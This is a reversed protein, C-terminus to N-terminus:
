HAAMFAAMGERVEPAAKAIAARAADDDLAVSRAELLEAAHSSVVADYGALAALLDPLARYRDVLREAYARASTFSGDGDADVFIPATLGFVVPQWATTTPQYPRPIAWSPDTVGPGSAIVVVFYDHARRPLPWTVMAKEIRTAAARPVTAHAHERGNVFLAVRDASVWSPGSVSAEITKADRGSVLDGPGAKSIRAQPFLGLSVVVRGAGISTIAEDVGIRGPTADAARVYTRGQGVIFRSVDHSDSAGIPTIHLGRNILAFWSRIPEMWDSRMAGSNVVEMATFAHALGRTAGTAANFNARAFPTFDSHTDHPHNLVTVTGDPRARGGERQASRRGLLAPGAESAPFVNFHGRATTVENGAITTVENAVGTASLAPSYDAVRNHETAIALEIGEGALTLAREAVSADGHGSLELTHIHTDMAVWGPTAVERVLTLPLEQRQGARVTITTEHMGYEPGRTARVRYTGPLLKVDMPGAAAYVVGPRVAMHGEGPVAQLPTLAGNADVITVRAPLPQADGGTVRVGLSSTLLRAVPVPELRVDHIVVDDSPTTSSVRLTNPGTRLTGAPVPLVQVLDAEMRVLLGIRTGNIEVRWDQKVDAQRILLSQEGDNAQAEFTLTLSDAAPPSSRFSDWEPQGAIGLHVPRSLLSQAHIVPTTAIAAALLAASTWRRQFSM